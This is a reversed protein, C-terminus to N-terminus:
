KNIQNKLKYYERINGLKEYLELLSKQVENREGIELDLTLVKEFAKKAQNRKDYNIYLKAQDLYFNKLMSKMESKERSNGLALTQGFLRDAELYDGAKIYLEVASMFDKIKGVFTTNIDAASKMCKAAELFMKKKDYIEALKLFVFKKTEFDLGSKLARQLYSMKVYDGMGDLKKQIEGPSTAEIPKNVERM